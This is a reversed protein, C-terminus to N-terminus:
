IVQPNIVLAQFLIGAPVFFFPTIYLHSNVAIHQITLDTSDEIKWGVLSRILQCSITRRDCGESRTFRRHRIELQEGLSLAPYPIPITQM